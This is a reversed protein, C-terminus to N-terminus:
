LGLLAALGDELSVEEPEEVAIYRLREELTSILRTYDAEAVGTRVAEVDAKFLGTIIGELGRKNFGGVELHNLLTLQYIIAEEEYITHPMGPGLEVENCEDNTSPLGINPKGLDTMPAALFHGIDHSLIFPLSNSKMQPSGREKFGLQIRFVVRGNEVAIDAPMRGDDEQRPEGVLFDIPYPEAWKILARGM